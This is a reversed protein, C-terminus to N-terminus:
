IRQVADIIILVGFVIFISTSVYKILKEPLKKGAIISLMIGLIGLFIVLNAVKGVSQVHNKPSKENM